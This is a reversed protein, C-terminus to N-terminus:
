LILDFSSFGHARKILDYPVFSDNILQQTNRINKLIGFLIPSFSNIDRVTQKQVSFGFYTLRQHCLAENLLAVAMGEETTLILVITVKHIGDSFSKFCGSLVFWRDDDQIIHVLKRIIVLM